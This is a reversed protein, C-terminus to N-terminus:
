SPLFHISLSVWFGESYNFNTVDAMDVTFEDNLYFYVNDDEDIVSTYM